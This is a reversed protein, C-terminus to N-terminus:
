CPRTSSHCVFGHLKGYMFYFSVITFALWAKEPFWEWLLVNLFCFRLGMKMFSSVNWLTIHLLSFSLSFCRYFSSYCALGGWCLTFCLAVRLRVTTLMFRRHLCDACSHAQKPCWFVTDCHRAKLGLEPKWIGPEQEHCGSLLLYWHHNWVLPRTVWRLFRCQKKCVLSQVPWARVAVPM